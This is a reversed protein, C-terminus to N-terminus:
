VGVLASCEGHVLVVGRVKAIRRIAILASILIAVLLGIPM